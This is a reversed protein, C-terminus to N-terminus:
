IDTIKGIAPMQSRLLQKAAAHSHLPVHAATHQPCQPQVAHAGQLGSVCAVPGFVWADVGHKCAGCAAPTLMLVWHAAADPGHAAHSPPQLGPASRAPCWLSWPSAPPSCAGSSSGQVEAEARCTAFSRTSLVHVVAAAATLAPAVPACFM